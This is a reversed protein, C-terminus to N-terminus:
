TKEKEGWNVVLNNALITVSKKTSAYNTPKLFLQKDVNNKCISQDFSVLGYTFAATVTAVKGRLSFM